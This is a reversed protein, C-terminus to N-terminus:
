LANRYVELQTKNTRLSDGKIAAKSVERFKGDKKGM